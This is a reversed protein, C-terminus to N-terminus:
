ELFAMIPVDSEIELEGWQGVIRYRSDKFILSDISGYDPEPDLGATPHMVKKVWRFARVNPFVLRAKGRPYVDLEFTIEAAGERIGLVYADPFYVDDFGPLNADDRQSM